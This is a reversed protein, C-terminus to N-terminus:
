AATIRLKALNPAESFDLNDVSVKLARALKEADEPKPKWFGRELGSIKAQSIGTLFTLDQQTFGRVFRAERLTVKSETM